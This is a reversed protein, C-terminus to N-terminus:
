GMVFTCTYDLESEVFGTWSDAAEDTNTNSLCAHRDWVNGPSDGTDLRDGANAAAVATLWENSPLWATTASHSDARRGLVPPHVAVADSLAGGSGNNTSQTPSSLPVNARSLTEPM